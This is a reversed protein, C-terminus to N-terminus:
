TPKYANNYCNIFDQGTFYLRIRILFPHIPHPGPDPIFFYSTDTYFFFCGNGTLLTSFLSAVRINSGLSVASIRLV